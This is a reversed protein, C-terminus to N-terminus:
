RRNNLFARTLGYGGATSGVSKYPPASYWMDRRTESGGFICMVLFFFIVIMGIFLMFTICTSFEECVAVAVGVMADCILCEEDVKVITPLIIFLIGTM